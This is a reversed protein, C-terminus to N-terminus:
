RALKYTSDTLFKAITNKSSALSVGDDNWIKGTKRIVKIETNDLPATNLTLVNNEVTFEAAIIEDGGPSDQDLTQNYEYYNYDATTNNPDVPTAKRLRTGAVFVDFENVSAPTWNLNFTTQTGDGTFQQTYTTDQYPITESVGQHFVRSNKAHVEKIGTGLTGRRLQRLVNGQKVFYEIREGNVFIIGPIALEKNPEDLGESDKLVISLDFWNLDAALEYERNSNIRKYHYRNLLDKFIRFAFKKNSVDATFYLVEILDNENPQESLIIIERNDSLIYDSQSTLFKGNVFVWAYEPGPIKTNLQIEGRSLLNKAIYNDSGVPANADSYRVRLSLREFENTDHNSFVYIKVDEDPIEKLSLRDSEVVKVSDIKFNTSDDFYLTPQDDKDALIFLDRVYGQLKITVDNNVKNYEQVTAIVGTSDGLEFNIQDLPEYDVLTGANSLKVETDVFFYEANNIFYIKLIDGPKGVARTTLELRADITSYVYNVPDIKKDNIYVLVDNQRISTQDEFQWNDVAYVRESTMTHKISHGADLFRDGQKVLINHSYPKKNFPLAVAGNVGFTHSRNTSVTTDFTDDIALQSYQQGSGNYLTYTIISNQAPPDGLMIMVKNANDGYEPGSKDLAFNTTVVGDIAVVATINQEFKYYTIFTDTRGDGTFTDSEIINSGNTGITLLSLHKGVPLLSSDSIRLVKEVYDIEYQSPDLVVNDLKVIVSDQTAPLNEVTYEASIGDTRFNQVTIAGQGKNVREFVQIDVTDLIQGPVNEEPGRNSAASVFDDGDIVIDGSDIGTATSFKGAINTLDGGTLQTDFVVGSPTVSGDSTAKRVIITDGDKTVLQDEDIEFTSTIGDGVITVMIADDNQLSPQGYDPDDIRIPNDNLGATASKYYINYEVGSEFPESVTITKTSGDLLFIEDEANGNFVDFETSGFLDGNDFGTKGGFFATDIQVGGYDVGDMLQALEKGFQGTEPNYFFNIRDAASLYNVDKDYEVVIVANNEPAVTFVIKGYYRTYNVTDDLVNEVSYANSLQEVGNVLIKTKSPTLNMPWKLVFEIKSGTGVFNETVDLDTVFYSGTIRDFKILMHTSRVPSNGLYAIARADTGDTQDGSFTIDPTTIYKAKSTDVVIGTIKDGSLTTRGTITPGGGGSITVKPSSTWGSGGSIIKIDTIEFGVNDFWNRQPYTTVFSSYNRIESDIVQPNESIIKAANVDYRPPLDFDSVVTQTPDINEYASVFERLKTSYPKVENVYENYSELSDSKYTTKQELAGVNHKAKIFATKFIWDINPQESLAYRVSSFFLKNWEVALEDVFIDDQIANLIIRVEEGADRDYLASDYVAKDFGFKENSYLLRSFELTGNQRGITEYNVTYDVELQNDIKRLLLWGGTGISEIKVIDGLNDELGGLAYSGPVLYDIATESSYGEAYWDIYQWYLSADYGQNNVRVWEKETTNWIYTSWFGLLTTDTQILATFPRVTIVTTNSYNKGANVINAEIVQGLNNIFTEIKAGTGTGQITVKPGRRKTDKTSDFAPDIYGRGPETIEVNTLRGDTIEVDLVAQKIKSTGVFRLLTENEVITDYERSVTNPVPDKSSLKSIDYEDVILNKALVLNIREIVQKLAETRNVFMTQLPQDLIGYRRAPSLTTVPLLTKQEDYGVLSDIWKNVLRDNPQSTALGETLLNYERHLNNIKVEETKYYEFHLITDEDKILSRCNYIAFNDSGFMALFRYGNGAPDEILSSVASASLNRTEIAPLVKSNKVWYYYKASFLGSIPDYVNKRVYRTNGYRSLGSVGQALGETTDAIEDWEEPLLDSEVWEYIDVSYGPIIKNWTNASYESNKQYPNYWKVASLDWLLDGVSESGWPNVLGTSTSGINYVAPDYYLKYKLEREAANAIKGQIPDIFDIYTILDSTVNDYLFAGRMKEYDLFDTAAGLTNWNTVDRDARLDFILGTKNDGTDLGKFGLYLHNKQYVLEVDDALSLDRELKQLTVPDEYYSEYDLVESVTYIDNLLEYTYAQPRKTSFDFLQTSRNDFITEDNDFLTSGVNLGNIGIVCLKDDSFDLKYGFRENKTSNPAQLTQTNVFSLSTDNYKYIYVLGKDIGTNRDSSVDASNAGVAIYKGDDSIALSEGWLIDTQPATIVEYFAYRGEEIRYVNVQYEETVTNYATFTLVEGNSSVDINKGAQNTNNFATSDNDGEITNSYPLFGFRDINAEIEIWLTIDTPDNGGSPIDVLARFLSNQFQVIENKVYSHFNDHSGRFLPDVTGEFSLNLYTTDYIYVRGNNGESRVYLKYIEDTTFATELGIGFKENATPENSVFQELLYYSNDLQKKYVYVVGQNSLGSSSGDVDAPIKYVQKWDQSNVNISSSDDETDVKAQWLTGRDSVIDGALIPFASEAEGKYKTKVNSALPAAVFMFQGDYSFKIKQGFGSANDHYGVPMEIEQIFNLRLSESSRTYIYIKQDEPKGVAFISNVDNVAFSSGFDSDGAERNIIEDKGDFIKNNEFVGFKNDSVNDIWIKNNKNLGYTNLDNNVGDPTDYRKSLLKTIAGNTSDSLDYFDESTVDATVSVVTSSVTAAKYFGDVGDDVFKLGFIEGAEIEPISDFQLDFGTDTKTFSLVRNPVLIHQYVNWSNKESTVWIIDDIRVNNIDLALIDTPTKAIFDVQDLSVYGATKTYEETSWKQPFPTTSYNEPKIYVKSEPIEYVLDTRNNNVTNVLEIIQPEIRFKTEDLKYELEDFVDTAGYQANRIAWEEYFELSEKDASGLKDFLKTLSNLTGKEQIFGQYFKYQSIDDEIINNLYERKQYGILHQALRQQESDFNDTDLDYFDAFQNAKYDFNTKLGSEPKEDLRNWNNIEFDASGSVFTNASYYFEKYKVLDGLAYDKWQEWETVDAQDYIFGPINLNGNWEDTRYGVVKIREQRYGSSPSYITDNFVTTNDLIVSHDKQVLGLKCFYIGDEATAPLIEVANGSDRNISINIDKIATGDLNLIKYNFINEKVNDIVYYEKFFNLSNAAPSLAIITGVAWNQTTYFLFEKVSLVWNEVAETERNFYDFVFGQSKLYHDYGQIFDVVEQKTSLVTGYDLTATVNSFNKRLTGTAGGIVPLEKLPTYFSPDFVDATTHNINVRYYNNQYRVIKGAVYQKNESWFLFSESIGGVNISIDNNSVIPTSYTFVPNERDYGSIKFGNTQKEIIVGSYTITQLPSSEILDIKYNEFPVFVNGKNSPNKSDLVLKLKEKDAFGGLKFAIKQKLNTLKTTFNEYQTTVDSSMYDYIYNVLGGTLVNNRTDSNVFKLNSLKLRRSEDGQYVIQGNINRKIRSKDFAVGVVQAPRNLMIAKLLAFPYESSRRWATEAPTHDGFKFSKGNQIAFSFENVYGSNLPSVINGSSDVPIHKTLGPRIFRKDTRLTDSSRIIGKELDNWLVLNDKTYPAPGYKSEWWSPKVSFGLMEWPRLNPSDTDYADMYIGRWFGSLPKNNKSSGFGYNYTFTQTEQVFSNDTYDPNGAKSAWKIFDGILIRNLDQKSVKSNRYEGSIYDYIDFVSTDYSVKINNYFRKELELLLEDRYDEYAIVISGDHGRIVTQNTKYTTDVFIEPKYAPYLGLKTPTQPIYSGNTTEYEFIDIRDDEQLNFTDVFQIFGENTFTYDLGHCVQTDNVYVSVAKESLTTLTFVNSLAYFKLDPDLVIHEIKKSAGIGLMDSKYFPMTSKKDKALSLLVQDVQEKVSGSIDINEAEQIFARKFKSYENKAFNLSAVLNNEKNSICFLPLNIPGSHQVFKRGFPKIDGLDRLNNSGPQNGQFSEIEIVASDLHDTVEGLTFETIDHNLPNREFNHATEYYGKSNKSAKSHAKIVLVDDVNLDNGFNIIRNNNSDAALSYDVGNSKLLNNVYVVVKLDDLLASQDFVDVKFGNTREQGTYKRIVYQKSLMPAKIWGNIYEFNNGDIDYKKLFGTSTKKTIVTNLVEYTFDESLLSFNFLIDGTNNINKYTLPFGLESDNIGEGLRYDFVRNGTFDTNPYIIDDSFSNGDEDCLDFKPAQNIGTKAQGLKWQSGDYWYMNGANNNGSTILVTENEYPITDDTEVLSIQSNGKFEFFKVQFIKGYVFSDADATFMVRMGEALEVGDISYGPQGEIKSKVDNTYTDILDINTKAKSGFNFLKLGKDFEIIPRKARQSEDLVAPQNNLDASKTIVDKHFWRNYRAWPNRDASAKNVVIYDKTGAFSKADSFPVRDFGNADFPIKSDNTFIAPVQLDETSILKIEDGVGDVYYIGSAYKEPVVNGTFYVKMGNSFKWGDSTTYTKKGIIENEVDISSNESIDAIILRTSINLDYQSVFYLTDPANEPITFELVGKEIYDDSVFDQQNLLTDDPDPILTVGETYTQNLISSDDLRENPDVGRYLAITLPNNPSNIEFRYTQGRYLNLNPNKTLGDPYFVLSIDNDQELVEVRYTSVVQNSQGPVAVEQPGNPLWYYERFNVFKDLNINPNWAYYEQENLASHNNTNANYTKLLGIYDNYDAYYKTSGLFDEYVSVPEFQYDQREKTVDDLYNDLVSVAKAERKGVFGNIKEIVGPNTLQDLTSSLFKKNQPTRFFRPLQEVSTRKKNNGAPLPYENQDDNYAM